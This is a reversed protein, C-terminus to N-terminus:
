RYEHASYSAGRQQLHRIVPDAGLDQSHTVVRIM